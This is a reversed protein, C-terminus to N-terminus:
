LPGVGSRSRLNCCHKSYFDISQTKNQIDMFYKLLYDFYIMFHHDQCIELELSSYRYSEVLDFRYLSNNQHNKIQHCKNHPLLKLLELADAFIDAQCCRVTELDFRVM